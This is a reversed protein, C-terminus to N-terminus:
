LKSLVYFFVMIAVEGLACVVVAENVMVMDM